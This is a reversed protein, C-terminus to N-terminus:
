LLRLLNNGNVVQEFMDTKRRLMDEIREELTDNAIISIVQVINEQGIRYLRDEAQRNLQPNYHKDLFICMDAKTLTLGVGATQITCLIVRYTDDTQFLDCNRQREESSIDGSIELCKINQSELMNKMIKLSSKFQTFLVLKHSGINNTVLEEVVELKASKVRGVSEEESLLQSSIAIQRLRMMQTLVNATIVVEGTSLEAVMEDRLEDYVKRDAPNLEVYINKYTKGKLQTLVDKKLRRIMIPSLMEHMSKPDLCGTINKIERGHMRMTSTKCWQDVFRWYSNFVKPYMLNLLSWLEDPSNEIPTGTLMFTRESKIKKCAKTHNANRNKLRHAEDYVVIDWDTQKITPLLEKTKRDWISEYNIVLIGEKFEQLIRKKNTNTVVHCKRGTWIDFEKQWTFKLSNPCVILVREAKLEQVATITQLTKGLGMDDGMIVQPVSCLFNVGQKQYDFLKDAYPVTFNPYPKAKINERMMRVQMVKRVWSRTSQTEIANPEVRKILQYTRYELPFVTMNNKRDYKAGAIDEINPNYGKVVLKNELNAITITM